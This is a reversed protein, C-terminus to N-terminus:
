PATGTAARNGPKVSRRGSLTRFTVSYRLAATPPIAHQWRWRAEGQMAYASRPQLVLDFAARARGREPPYPRFRMRCPGALSIGAVVEFDPVDRHWGLATGPRYETVLAHAFREAPIALWQAVKERLPLLFGPVPEAARLENDSFDYQSGFSAIRRKATYQRYRAESLPLRAFGELLRAEEAADVFDTVYRFGPPFGTAGFLDPQEM